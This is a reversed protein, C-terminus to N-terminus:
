MAGPDGVLGAGPEEGLSVSPVVCSWPCWLTVPDHPPDSDGDKLNTLSFTDAAQISFACFQGVAFYPWRVSPGGAM